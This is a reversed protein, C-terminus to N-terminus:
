EPVATWTKDPDFETAATANETTSTGLDKDYLVGNQNIIFTAIGTAGYKEPYAIVAFGKTMKGNVIYNKAGGRADPGQKTLMRYFYGHFPQQKGAQSNFGETSAFAVLPGLLSRPKGEASKWYLGDQKGEDSVFKQAYQKVGDHRQALYQAQADVIANMVDITALENDGIRRAHIEAKGAASDFSWQGGSNKALPIPFPQNDTGVVLVESGDTQKRWRNMTQYATTFHEATQKDQAADGSFILEAADSGFIALLANRDDAKTAAVLAAGADDPTAFTKPRVESPAPAKSTNCAVLPLLAALFVAMTWFRSPSMSPNLAVTLM